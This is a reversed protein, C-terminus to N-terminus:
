APQWSLPAMRTFEKKGSEEFSDLGELEPIMTKRQIERLILLINTTKM